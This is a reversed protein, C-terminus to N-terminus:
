LLASPILAEYGNFDNSKVTAVIANVSNDNILISEPTVGKIIGSGNVDKYPILRKRLESCAQIKAGLTSNEGVLVVKKGSFPEILLNGSDCFGILDFSQGDLSIHLKAIKEDKKSTIIKSFILSALATFVIIVFLKGGNYTEEYTYKSIFQALLSNFFAYLLTMIGGLAMSAFFYVITASIMRKKSQESFAIKIMLLAVVVSLSIQLLFDLVFFVQITGYFAGILSSLIIRVKKFRIHFIVATFFLGLFDMSFNIAFLVDAYLVLM